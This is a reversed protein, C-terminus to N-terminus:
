WADLHVEPAVVFSDRVGIDGVAGLDSGAPQRAAVYLLGDHIVLVGRLSLSRITTSFLRWVHTEHILSM